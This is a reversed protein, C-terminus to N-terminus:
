GFLDGDPEAAQAAADARKQALRARGAPTLGLKEAYQLMTTELKQITKEYGNLQCIALEMATSDEKKEAKGFATRAKRIDALARDYRSLMVCYVGLVESDLDDLIQVDEMRKLIDVWYKKARADARMLPPVVLKVTERQSMTESEAQQRAALEEDTMNKSMAALSKAPTPM